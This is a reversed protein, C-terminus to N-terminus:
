TNGRSSMYQRWFEDSGQGEISTMSDNLKHWPAASNCHINIEPRVGPDGDLLGAPVAVLEEQNTYSPLRCGCTSCFPGRVGPSSEYWSMSDMGQIWQFKDAVVQLQSTHASGSRKQCRSCHCFNFLLIASPDIEFRVAGCLCGGRIM